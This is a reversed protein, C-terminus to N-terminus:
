RSGSRSGSGTSPRTSTPSCARASRASAIRTGAAISDVHGDLEQTEGVLRVRVQDGVKIRAIKTEEFYGLVHISRRDVLAFTPRGATAYTGPRLELNTVWGDVSAKVETRSLNLRAGDLATSSQLLNAKLQGLRTASQERLEGPVLDGLEVNRRHERQAQAIQARLGVLSAVAQTVALMYRARDITFLVDGAKVLDNDRVVVQDVLGSVDPAIPVVDARVRGDRTWPAERYHDWLRLGVFAAATAATLTVVVRLITKLVPNM